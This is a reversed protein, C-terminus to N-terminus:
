WGGAPRRARRARAGQAAQIPRGGAGHDGVAPPQKFFPLLHYSLAWEYDVLTREGLGEQRKAELWESAFVHFTPDDHVVPAPEADAPRWIGKRVLTSRTPWNRSPRRRTDM